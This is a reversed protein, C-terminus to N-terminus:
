DTKEQNKSIKITKQCKQRKEGTKRCEKSDKQLKDM